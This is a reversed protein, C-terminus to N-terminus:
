FRKDCLIVQVWLESIKSGFFVTNQIQRVTYNEASVNADYVVLRCAQTLRDRLIVLFPGNGDVFISQAPALPRMISKSLISMIFWFCSIARQKLFTWFILLEVALIIGLHFPQAYETTIYRRKKVIFVGLLNKARWWWVRSDGEVLPKGLDVINGWRFNCKSQTDGLLEHFAERCVNATCALIRCCAKRTRRPSDSLNEGDQKFCITCLGM